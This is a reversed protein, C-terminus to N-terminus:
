PRSPNSYLFRISTILKATLHVRSPAEIDNVARAEHATSRYYCRDRAFEVGMRAPSFGKRLSTGDEYIAM